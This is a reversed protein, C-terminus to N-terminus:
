PTEFARAADVLARINAPPTVPPLACGSCVILRPSSRYAKLLERTKKEVLEPSGLALVASPDIIQDTVAVHDASRGSLGTSTM